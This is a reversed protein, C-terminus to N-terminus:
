RGWPVGSVGADFFRHDVGRQLPGGREYGGDARNGGWNWRHHGISSGVRSIGAAGGFTQRSEPGKRETRGWLSQLLEFEDLGGDWMIFLVHNEGRMTAIRYPPENLKAIARNVALSCASDNLCASENQSKKFAV